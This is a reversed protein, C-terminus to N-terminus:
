AVKADPIVQLPRLILRHPQNQPQHGQALKSSQQHMHSNSTNNHLHHQGAIPHSPLISISPPVIPPRTRHEPSYELLHTFVSTFFSPDSNMRLMSSSSKAVIALVRTFFAGRTDGESLFPKLPYSIENGEYSYALYLCSLVCSKLHSLSTFKIEPLSERLLLFLFVLNSPSIFALDQWGQVLLARDVSRLWLVVDSSSYTVLDALADSGKRALPWVYERELFCSIARLLDSTSAQIVAPRVPTSNTQQPQNLQQQQHQVQHNSHLTVNKAPVLSSSNSNISVTGIPIPSVKVTIPQSITAAQPQHPHPHPHIISTQHKMVPNLATTTNPQQLSCLPHVTHSSRSLFVFPRISTGQTAMQGITSSQRSTTDILTENVGGNVNKYNLANVTNNLKNLTVTNSSRLELQTSSSASSAASKTISSSTSSTVHNSETLEVPTPCKPSEHHHPEEIISSDEDDPETEDPDEDIFAPSSTSRLAVSGPRIRDDYDSVRELEDDDDDDDYDDDHDGDVQDPEDEDDAEDESEERFKMQKTTRQIHIQRQKKDIIEGATVPLNRREDIKASISQIVSLDDTVRSSKLNYCSLSNPISSPVNSNSNCTYSNVVVKGGGPGVGQHSQIYTAHHKTLPNVTTHHPQGVIHTSIINSGDTSDTNSYLCHSRIVDVVGCPKSRRTRHHHNNHTDINCSTSPIGKTAEKSGFVSSFLSVLSKIKNTNGNSNGNNPVNTTVTSTVDRGNINNNSTSQGM